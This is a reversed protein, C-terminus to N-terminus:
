DETEDDEEDDSVPSHLDLAKHDMVGSMIYQLLELDLDVAWENVVDSLFSWDDKGLGDTQDDYDMHLVDSLDGLLDTRGKLVQDWGYAFLENLLPRPLRSFPKSFLQEVRRGAKLETQIGPQIAMEKKADSIAKAILQSHRM